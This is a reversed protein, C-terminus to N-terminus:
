KRKGGMLLSPDGKPDVSVRYPQVRVYGRADKSGAEVMQGNEDNLELYGKLGKRGFFAANATTSGAGGAGPASTSSIVFLGTADSTSGIQAVHGSDTYVDLQGKLSVGGDYVKFIEKGGAGTVSFPAVMAVKRPAQAGVTAALYGGVVAFVAGAVFSPIKGRALRARDRLIDIERHAAAVQAEARGVRRELDALKEPSMTPRWIIHRTTAGADRM